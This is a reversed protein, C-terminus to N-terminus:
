SGEAQSAELLRERSLRASPLLNELMLFTGAFLVGLLALPLHAASSDTAFVSAAILALLVNRLVTSLGLWSTSIPGFCSCMVRIGRARTLVAVASFAGLLGLAVLSGSRPSLILVVAAGVESLPIIAAGALPVTRFLRLAELTAAFDRLAALKTGSATLMVTVLFFRAVEAIHPLELGTM